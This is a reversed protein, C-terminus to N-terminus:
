QLPPALKGPKGGGEQRGGRSSGWAGVHGLSFGLRTISPLYVKGWPAAPSLRVLWPGQCQSRARGPWGLAPQMSGLGPQVRTPSRCLSYGGVLHSPLLVGPLSFGFMSLWPWLHRVSVVVLFCESEWHCSMSHSFWQKTVINICLVITCATAMAKCWEEADGLVVNRWCPWHFKHLFCSQPRTGWHPFGLIGHQLLFQPVAPQGGLGDQCLSHLICAGPPPLSLTLHYQKM